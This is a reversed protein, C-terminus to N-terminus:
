KKDTSRTTIIKERIKSLKESRAKDGFLTELAFSDFILSFIMVVLDVPLFYSFQFLFLKIYLYRDILLM